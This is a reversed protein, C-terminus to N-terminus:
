KPNLSKWTRHVIETTHLCIYSARDDVDGAWPDSEVILEFSGDLAVSVFWTPGGHIFMNDGMLDGYAMLLRATEITFWEMMAAHRPGPVGVADRQPDIGSIDRERALGIDKVEPVEGGEAAIIQGSLLNKCCILDHTTFDRHLRGFEVARWLLSSLNRLGSTNMGYRSLEALIAAIHVAEYGFRRHNGRGLKPKGIAFILNEKLWYALTEGPVGIAASLQQRTMQLANPDFPLAM